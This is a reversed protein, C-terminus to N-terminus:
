IARYMQCETIVSDLRVDWPKPEIRDVRQIEYTFGTLIPNQFGRKRFEFTRDYYGAGGGVRYCRDDFAILPCIVFDLQDGTIWESQPVDPEDIGFWNQKLGIEPSWPAFMLPTRKAVMIPAYVQKGNEVAHIMLEMPDAEAEFALFGAVKQAQQFSVLQQFSKCIRQNAERRIDDSLTRRLTRIHERLPKMKAQNPTDCVREM